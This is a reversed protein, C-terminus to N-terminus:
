GKNITEGWILTAGCVESVDSARMHVYAVRKICPPAYTVDLCECHELCVGCVKLAYALKIHWQCRRGAYSLSISEIPRVISKLTERADGM